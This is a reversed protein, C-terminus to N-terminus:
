WSFLSTSFQVTCVERAAAGVGRGLVSTELDCIDVSPGDVRAASGLSEELLSVGLASQAACALLAIWRSSVHCCQHEM